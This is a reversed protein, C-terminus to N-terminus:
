LVAAVFHHADVRMQDQVSKLIKATKIASRFFFGERDTQRVSSFSSNKLLATVNGWVRTNRSSITIPLPLLLSRVWLKKM